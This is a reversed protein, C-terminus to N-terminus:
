ESRLTDAPNTRAGRFIQLSVTALALISLTLLPVAFLDFTLRVRFAFNSIWEDAIYWAVPLAIVASIAVLKVFQMSLLSVIGGVTAGLVKRIGIERQRNAVTFSALGWLGLCAIAIALVAFIGFIRETQQVERYQMNFFEDLFYYEFPNAPFFNEYIGEIQHISEQINGNLHVSYLSNNASQPMFMMPEYASMPSNWHINKIVGQIAVPEGDGVIIREHRAEEPTNIGMRHMAAENLFVAKMESANEPNWPQGSLVQMGYTRIFDTDVLVVHISERFKNKDEAIGAKQMGTTFSYGGGPIAGSSTVASVSHIKMLEHKFSLMRESRRDEDIIQPGTLILMQDTKFGKDSKLMYDLQSYIIFTGAILLLSSSFQFVVLARRLGFGRESKKIGKIVDAAQYSSLIFAPYIGSVFAGSALLVGFATWMIPDSYNFSIEKGVISSLVPLLLSAIAFALVVSMFNIVIAECMFQAILQRKLVGMAKKVGVEKAREIARATSLNVYNIWAICLIFISILIFFYLSILHSNARNLDPSLNLERLPQYSLRVGLPETGVRDDMFRKTKSELLKVDAGPVLEVYTTFNMATWAADPERYYEIQLLNHMPLLMEFQLHANAPVDKLVATVVYTGDVWDRTKVEVSRGIPDGNGFFRRAMSETIVISSPQDLSHLADGKLVEYSFISLFSPDAFLVNEEHFIRASGNNNAINVLAADGYLPHVRAYNRVEPIESQLAQGLGYGFETFWDDKWNKGYETFATRYINDANKHFNDYSMEFDVYRWILMCAAIGFALGSVNIASYLKRRRLSRLAHKFYSLLM